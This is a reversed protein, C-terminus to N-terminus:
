HITEYFKTGSGLFNIIASLVAQLRQADRARRSQKFAVERGAPACRILWKCAAARLFICCTYFAILCAPATSHLLSSRNLCAFAWCSKGLAPGGHDETSHRAQMVAARVADADVGQQRLWACIEDRLDSRVRLTVKGGLQLGTLPCSRGGTTYLRLM